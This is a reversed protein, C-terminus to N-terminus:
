RTSLAVGALSVVRASPATAYRKRLPQTRPTHESAQRWAPQRWRWWVAGVRGGMGVPRERRSVVTYSHGSQWTRRRPVWYQWSQRVNQRRSPRPPRHGHQASGMVKSSSM